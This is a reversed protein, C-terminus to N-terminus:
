AYSYAGTYWDGGPDLCYETISNDITCYVRIHVGADDAWSTASVDRGDQKFSGSTWGNPGYTRQTVTYGNGGFVNLSLQGNFMCATSATLVPLDFQPDSAM